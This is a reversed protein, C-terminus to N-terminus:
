MLGRARAAVIAGYGAMDRMLGDDITQIEGDFFGDNKVLIEFARLFTSRGGIIIPTHPAMKFSDCNKIAILDEGFVAGMLFNAKENVTYYAFLGLLRVLFGARNLGAKNSFYAGKLIMEEHIEDAFSNKLSNALITNNTLASLMEGGITTICGSIQNKDNISVFKSHSGPLILVAPGKLKLTDIIGLTETEEGRMIDMSDCNDIDINFIKNKVGPIFWIPKDIVEKIEAQVMNDSLEKLGAPAYIHNVEFLGVNSTIMGSALFLSIDDKTVGASRLALQIAEKVGQQLMTKSGTIATNRVGAEVSGTSIVMNNKWVKVRTNTTGTDITIIYM